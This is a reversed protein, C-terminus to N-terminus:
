EFMNDFDHAASDRILNHGPLEIEFEGHDTEYKGVSSRVYRACIRVLVKGSQLFQSELPFYIGLKSYAPIDQVVVKGSFPEQAEFTVSQLLEGGSEANFHLLWGDPKLVSSVEGIPFRIIAATDEQSLRRIRIRPIFVEEPTIGGHVFPVPRSLFRSRGRKVIYRRSIPAGEPSLLSYGDPVSVRGGVQVCRESVKGLKEDYFASIEPIRALGHDATIVVDLDRKSSEVSDILSKVSELVNKFVISIQDSLDKYTICDHLQEDIQNEYLVFLKTKDYIHKDSLIWSKSVQLQEKSALVDKYAQWLAEEYGSPLKFSDLGTSVALKGIETLTPIPCFLIDSQISVKLESDKLLKVLEDAIIAGLADVVILAVRRGDSLSERVSTAVARWNYSYTDMRGPSEVVWDFFSNSLFEPPSEERKLLKNAYKLYSEGWVVVQKANSGPLLSAPQDDLVLPQLKQRLEEILPGDIKELAAELEKTALNHHLVVAEGILDLQAKSQFVITSALVSPALNGVKILELVRKTVRSLLPEHDVWDWVSELKISRLISVEFGRAPLALGLNQSSNLSRIHEILSNNLLSLLREVANHSSLLELIQTIQNTDFSSSLSRKAIEVFQGSGFLSWVPVKDKIVAVFFEEATSVSPLDQSLLSLIIQEVALDQSISNLTIAKRILENDIIIDDTCWGPISSGLIRALEGRATIHFVRVKDLGDYDKFRDMLAKDLRIRYVRGNSSNLQEWVRSRLNLIMGPDNLEIDIDQRSLHNPDIIFEVTAM